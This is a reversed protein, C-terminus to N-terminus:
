LWREREKQFEELVIPNVYDLYTILEEESVPKGFPRDHNLPSDICLNVQNLMRSDLSHIHGHLSFKNPRIGIDMPYHTLWLQYRVKTKPSRIKIYDGVMHLEKLYGEKLLRKVTKSDDHNGKYLIINGNLNELISVWENYGGFCFDGLHHVTDNEGVTENWVKILHENMEEITEFPRKEFELVRKHYFHHDSTYYKTM